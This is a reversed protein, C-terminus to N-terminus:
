RSVTRQRTSLYSCVGHDNTIDRLTSLETSTNRALTSPLRMYYPLGESKHTLIGYVVITVNDAIIM